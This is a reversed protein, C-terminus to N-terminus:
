RKTKRENVGCIYAVGIEAETERRSPSATLHTVEHIAYTFLTFFPTPLLM